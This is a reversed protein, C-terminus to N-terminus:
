QGSVSGQLVAVMCHCDPLPLSSQEDPQSDFDSPVGGDGDPPMNWGLWKLCVHCLFPDEMGISEGM